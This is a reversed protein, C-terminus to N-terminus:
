TCDPHLGVTLNTGHDLCWGNRGPLPGDRPLNLLESWRFAPIQVCWVFLIECWSAKLERSLQGHAVDNLFTKPNELGARLHWANEAM